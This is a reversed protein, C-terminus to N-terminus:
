LLLADTEPKKYWLHQTDRLFVLFAHSFVSGASRIQLKPERDLIVTDFEHCILEQLLPRKL